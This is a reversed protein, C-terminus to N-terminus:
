ARVVRRLPPRRRRRGDQPAADAPRYAQLRLPVVRLVAADRRHAHREDRRHHPQHGEGQAVGGHAAARLLAGGARWHRRLRPRGHQLHPHQRRAPDQGRAGHADDGGHAPSLARAGLGPRPVVGCPRGSESSMYAPDWEPSEPYADDINVHYSVTTDYQRECEDIARLLRHRGGPRPNVQHMSPYGDDHGQNQWGVLYILQPIGDAVNHIARVIEMMQPYTTFVQDNKLTLFIKYSITSRYLEDADPLTRNVWLAWDSWDIIGDGNYDGLFVVKVDLPWMTRSRVRYRYDNLAVSYGDAGNAHREPLLPFNGHVFACLRDPHYVCGHMVDCAAEDGGVSGFHERWWKKGIDSDEFSIRAYRYERDSVQLLPSGGFGLTALPGAIGDIRLRLCDAELDFRYDFSIDGYTVHFASSTATASYDLTLESWPVAAGNITLPTPQPDGLLTQGTALHTYSAVVPIGDHLQVRLTENELLM